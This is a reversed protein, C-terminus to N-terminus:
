HRAISCCLLENSRCLLENSSHKPTKHLHVWHHIIFNSELIFFLRTIYISLTLPLPFSIFYITSLLLFNNHPFFPSFCVLMWIVSSLSLFAYCNLMQLIYQCGGGGGVMNSTLRNNTAISRFWM